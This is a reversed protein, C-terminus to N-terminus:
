DITVLYYFQTNLLADRESSTLPGTKSKKDESTRIDDEHVTILDLTQIQKVYTTLDKIFDSDNKHLKIKNNLLELVKKNSPNHDFHFFKGAKIRNEEGKANNAFWSSYKIFIIKKIYVTNEKLYIKDKYNEDLKSLLLEYASKSIRRPVFCDNLHMWTSCLTSNGGGGSLLKSMFAEDKYDVSFIQYFLLATNEIWKDINIKNKNSM